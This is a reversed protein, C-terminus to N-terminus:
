PRPPPAVARFGWYVGLGVVGGLWGILLCCCQFIESKEDRTGPATAFVSRPYLTYIPVYLTYM